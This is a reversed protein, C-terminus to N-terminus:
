RKLEVTLPGVEAKFGRRQAEELAGLLRELERKIALNENALAELRDEAEERRGRELHYRGRLSGISELEKVVFQYQETLEQRRGREEDLETRVLATRADADEVVSALRDCEEELNRAYEVARRVDEQSSELRTELRALSERAQTWDEFGVAVVRTREQRAAPELSMAAGGTEGITEHSTEESIEKLPPVYRYLMGEPTERKEVEGRQYMRSLTRTSVELRAALADRGFWEQNGLSVVKRTESQRKDQTMDQGKHLDVSVKSM